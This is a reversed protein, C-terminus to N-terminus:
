PCVSAETVVSFVTGIRIQSSLGLSASPYIAPDPDPCVFGRGGVGAHPFAPGAFVRGAAADGSPNRAALVAGLPLM